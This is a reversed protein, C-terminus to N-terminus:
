TYTLFGVIALAPVVVALTMLSIVLVAGVLWTPAHLGEAADSAFSRGLSGHGASARWRNEQWVCLALAVGFFVGVPTAGVVFSLIAILSSAASGVSYAITMAYSHRAVDERM